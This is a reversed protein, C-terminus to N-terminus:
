REPLVDKALAFRNGLAKKLLEEFQKERDKITDSRTEEESTLSFLM